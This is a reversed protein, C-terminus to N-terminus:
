ASLIALMKGRWWRNEQSIVDSFRLVSIGYQNRTVLWIQTIGKIPQLLNGVGQSWDSASSLVVDTHFKKERKESTM